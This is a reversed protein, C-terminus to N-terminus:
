TTAVRVPPAEVEAVARAEAQGRPAVQEQVHPEGEVFEELFSVTMADIDMVLRDIKACIWHFFILLLFVMDIIPTLEISASMQSGNSRVM